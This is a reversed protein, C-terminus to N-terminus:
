PKKNENIGKRYFLIIIYFMWGCTITDVHKKIKGWLIREKQRGEEWGGGWVRGERERRESQGERDGLNNFAFCGDGPFCVLGEAYFLHLYSGGLCM